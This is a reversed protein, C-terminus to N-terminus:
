APRKRVALWLAASLLVTLAAASGWVLWPRQYWQILLNKTILFTRSDSVTENGAADAAKVYLSQWDDESSLSFTVIGGSAALEEQDFTDALRGNLWIEACLLSLNDRIDITVTRGTDYYRAQDEVGTVVVSPPATDVAFAIEKEKIGNSSRNSAKDESYITVTYFGDERFNEPGIEYTYAKWGEKSDSQTVRYDEGQRLRCLEGDRGCTIERFELTDVNIETVNLGTPRDLYFRDLAEQTKSDFLYASGFRNVSFLLTEESVNGALDAASVSLTYLDDTEKTRPFDKYRIEQGGPIPTREAELSVAGNRAGTLRIEAGNPALNEDSYLVNPAVEQNNASKDRINTIELRPPTLDIIFHDEEYARAQNGALDQCAIHFTFEGDYDYLVFASHRDASGTWGSVAPPAIEEGARRATITIVADEPQFNHETVTIVAQRQRNYYLGHAANQNDYVVTVEPPTRDITFPSAETRASRNGARDTCQFALTYDGDQAFTMRMEYVCGDVHGSEEGTCGSGPVHRWEGTEPKEGSATIFLEGDEPRFCRDTVRILATRAERYFKEHAPHNQDFTIEVSPLLTDIVFEAAAPEEAKWGALDEAACTFQWTGQEKFTVTNRYIGEGENRWSGDWGASLIRHDQSGYGQINLKTLAPDFNAERVTVQATVPGDYFKKERIEGTIDTGNHLFTVEIVPKKTDLVLYKSTFRGESVEAGEMLNGSRDAYEASFRYIGDESMSFISRHEEGQNEWPSRELAKSAGAAQCDIRMRRGDEPFFYRERIFVDVNGGDRYFYTDPYGEHETYSGPHYDVKWKPPRNDLIYRVSDGLPAASAPATNGANDYIRIDEIQKETETQEPIKWDLYFVAELYAKGGIEARGTQPGISKVLTERKGDHNVTVSIKQIGSSIRGPEAQYMGERLEDRVYLKLATHDRGYVAGRGPMQYRHATLEGYGSNEPSDKPNDILNDKLSDKGSETISDAKEQKLYRHEEAEQDPEPDNENGDGHDWQILVTERPAGNDIRVRSGQGGSEDTCFFARNGAWDTVEAGYLQDQDQLFTESHSFSRVAEDPNATGGILLSGEPQNEGDTEGKLAYWRISSIGFADEATACITKGRGDAASYWGTLESGDATRVHNEGATTRFVGEEPQAPSKKDVVITLSGLGEQTYPCVTVNGANDTIRVARCEYVTEEGEAGTLTLRCVGKGKEPLSFRQEGRSTMLVAEKLGSAKTDPAEPLDEATVAVRVDTGSVLKGNVMHDRDTLAQDQVPAAEQYKVNSFCYTVNPAGGSETIVAPQNDINVRSGKNESIDGNWILGTANGAWDIARVAYLQTQPSQFLATGSLLTQGFAGSTQEPVTMMKGPQEATLPGQIVKGEEDTMYWEMSYIGHRDRANATIRLAQGRASASYWELVGERNKASYAEDLFDVEPVKGDVAITEPALDAGFRYVTRNGARDTIELTEPHYATEQGPLVPLQFCYRGEGNEEEPKRVPDYNQGNVKLIVTEIGSGSIEKEPIVNESVSGELDNEKATNDAWSANKENQDAELFDTEEKDTGTRGTGDRVEVTLVVATRSLLTERFLYDGIQSEQVRDGGSIKEYAANAFQYYVAPHGDRTEIVPGTEDIRVEVAESRAECGAQDKVVVVYSQSQDGRKAAGERNYVWSGFSVQGDTVLVNEKQDSISEQEEEAAVCYVSATLERDADCDEVTVMFEFQAEGGRYWYDEKGTGNWQVRIKPPKLGNESVSGDSGSGSEADAADQATKVLIRGKQAEAGFPTLFFLMLLLATLFMGQRKKM